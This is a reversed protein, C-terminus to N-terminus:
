AQPPEAFEPPLARPHEQPAVPALGADTLAKHVECALDLRGIQALVNLLEAYANPEM